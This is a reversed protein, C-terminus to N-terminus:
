TLVYERERILQLIGLWRGADRDHHLGQKLKCRHRMIRIKEPSGPDADTPFSPAAAQGNFDPPDALYCFRM